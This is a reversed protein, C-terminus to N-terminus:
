FGSVQLAELIKRYEEINPDIELARKICRKAELAKVRNNSQIGELLLIKGKEGWAVANRPNIQLAKDFCQIADQLGGSDKLCTAKNIWAAECGPDLDIAREYCKIAESPRSLKLLSTGKNVWAEGFLPYLKLAEDYCRSADEFKGSRLFSNGKNYWEIADSSSAASEPRKRRRFLGM